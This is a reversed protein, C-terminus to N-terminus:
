GDHRGQRRTEVGRHDRALTASHADAQDFDVGDLLRPGNVKRLASRPFVRPARPRTESGGGPAGAKIPGAILRAGEESGLLTPLTSDVFSSGGAGAAAGEPGRRQDRASVSVASSTRIRFARTSPRATNLM